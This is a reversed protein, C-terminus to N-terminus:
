DEKQVYNSLDPEPIKKIEDNIKEDSEKKSYVDLNKRAEVKSALDSLNNSSLL